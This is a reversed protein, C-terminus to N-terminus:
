LLVLNDRHILEPADVYGLFEHSGSVAGLMYFPLELAEAIQECVTTKGSGAPGVLALNIAEVLTVEPVTREKSRTASARM